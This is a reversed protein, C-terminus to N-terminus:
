LVAGAIIAAVQGLVAGLAVLFVQYWLDLKRRREMVQEHEYTALTCLGDQTAFIAELDRRLDAACYEQPKAMLWLVVDKERESLGSFRVGNVSRRLMDAQEKTLM